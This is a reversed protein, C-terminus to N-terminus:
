LEIYRKETVKTGKFKDFGSEEVVIRDPNKESGDDALAKTEIKIVRGGKMGVYDGVKVRYSNGDPTAVMANPVGKIVVVAILRFQSMEYKELPGKVEEPRSVMVAESVETKEQVLPTFPDRRDLPNYSYSDGQVDELLLQPEDAIDAAFASTYQVVVLM